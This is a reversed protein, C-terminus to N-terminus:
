GYSPTRRRFTRPTRRQNEDLKIIELKALKLKKSLDEAYRERTRRATGESQLRDELAAREADWQSKDAKAQLDMAEITGRLAVMEAERQKVTEHLNALREGVEEAKKADEGAKGLEQELGSIMKLQEEIMKRQAEASM